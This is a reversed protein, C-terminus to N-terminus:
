KADMSELVCVYRDLGALHVWDSFTVGSERDEKERKNEFGLTRM